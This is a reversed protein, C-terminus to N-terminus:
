ASFRRTRAALAPLVASGAMEGIRGGCRSAVTLEMDDLSHKSRTAMPPPGAPRAAATWAALSPLRAASMSRAADASDPVLRPQADEFTSRAALRSTAPRAMPDIALSELGLLAELDVIEYPLCRPHDRVLV